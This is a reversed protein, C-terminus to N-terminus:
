QLPAYDIATLDAEFLQELVLSSSQRNYNANPQLILEEIRALEQVKSSRTLVRKGTHLFADRAQQEDGMTAKRYRIRVSLWFSMARKELLLKMLEEGLPQRLEKLYSMLHTFKHTPTLHKVQLLGELSQSRFKVRFSSGGEM